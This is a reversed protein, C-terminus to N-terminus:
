AVQSWYEPDPNPIYVGVTQASRQQIFSFFDSFDTTNLASSRKKPVKRKQGMIELVEWGGWEGLFYEHLDEPDNGTEESLIKYALGWLARNQQNSRTRRFPRVVLEWPKEADLGCLFTSIRVVRAKRREADEKPLLIAREHKM